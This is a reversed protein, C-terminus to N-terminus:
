PKEVIRQHNIMLTRAKMILRIMMTHIEMEILLDTGNTKRCSMNHVRNIVENPMDLATWLKRNIIRGTSLSYFYYGGQTNGTPRM